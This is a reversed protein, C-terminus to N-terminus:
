LGISFGDFGIPDDEILKGGPLGPQGPESLSVPIMLAGDLALLVSETTPAEYHKKMNM